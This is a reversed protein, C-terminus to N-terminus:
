VAAPRFPIWYEVEDLEQGGMGTARFERQVTGGLSEPIRRSPHNRRDVPYTFHRTGPPLNSRAWAVLGTIAERGFGQGHATEKLWIGLEPDPRGIGHLGAVGLFDGNAGDLIAMVLEEGVALAARASEIFALTESIDEAPAPNMYRTIRANFSAFVAPAHGTAIPELRLRPTTICLQDLGTM